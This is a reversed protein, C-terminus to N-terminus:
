DFVTHIKTIKINSNFHESIKKTYIDSNEVPCSITVKVTNLYEKMVINAGNAETVHAFSDLYSYDVDATFIDCMIKEKIGAEKLAEKSALTYARILGGVGLLTGGFYRTVVCCVDTIEEKELMELVPFGGTKSPEGDDSYKKEGDSLIYAYVNHRADYHKKKISQIFEEAEEKNEIHTIYAIFRSKKETIEASASSAATIYKDM